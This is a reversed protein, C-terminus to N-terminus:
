FDFISISPGNYANVSKVSGDAHLANVTDRLHWWDIRKQDDSPSVRWPNWSVTHYYDMAMIYETPSELITVKFPKKYNASYYWSALENFGYSAADIDPHNQYAWWLFNEPSKDTPCVFVEPADLFLLLLQQPPPSDTAPVTWNYPDNTKGFPFVDNYDGYYNTLAISIQKQNSACVAKEATQRAKSLSPLLMSALIGIIAVVVLLEILTFRSNLRYMIVCAIKKKVRIFM